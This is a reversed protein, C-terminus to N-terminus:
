YLTWNSVASPPASSKILAFTGNLLNRDTPTFTFTRQAANWTGKQAAWTKDGNRRMLGVYQQNSADKFVLSGASSNARMPQGVWVVFLEGALFGSPLAVTNLYDTKVAKLAGAVQSTLKTIGQKGSLSLTVGQGSDWTTTAGSSLTLSSNIKTTVHPSALYPSYIVSSGNSFNWSLTAGPGGTKDLKPGGSAGWYNNALDSSCGSTNYVGPSLAPGFSCGRANASADENIYLSYGSGRLNNANLDSNQINLITGPLYFLIGGADNNRITSLSIKTKTTNKIEMSKASEYQLWSDMDVAGADQLRTDMDPTGTSINGQFYCDSKSVYINAVTSNVVTNDLIRIGKSGEVVAIGQDQTRAIYSNSLTANNCTWFTVGSNYSDLVECNDVVGPSRVYYIGDGRATQIRCNTTIVLRADVASVASARQDSFTCGSVEAIGGATTNSLLDVGNLFGNM